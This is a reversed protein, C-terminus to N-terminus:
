KMVIRIDSNILIDFTANYINPLVYRIYGIRDQTWEPKIPVAKVYMVPMPSSQQKDRSETLYGACAVGSFTLPFFYRCTLFWQVLKSRM